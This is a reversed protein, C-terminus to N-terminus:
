LIVSVLWKILTYAIFGILGAGLMIAILSFNAIGFKSLWYEITDNVWDPFNGNNLLQSVPTTAVDVVRTAVDYLGSFVDRCFTLVESFGM